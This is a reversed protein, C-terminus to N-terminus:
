RVIGINELDLLLYRIEEPSRGTLRTLEAINRHGDILLLLRRHNRTLGAQELLWLSSQMERLRQPIVQEYPTFRNNPIPAQERNWNPLSQTTPLHQNVPLQPGTVPPQPGTNREGGQPIFTFLCGSWSQLQFLAQQDSLYGLSAQTVQGRYFIVEGQELSAGEGRQVSLRGTKRGLQIVQIVNNLKDTYTGHQPPM